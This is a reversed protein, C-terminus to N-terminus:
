KAVTAWSVTGAVFARIRVEPRLRGARAWGVLRHFGDLHYLTNPRQVLGRHAEAELPATVLILTSFNAGSAAALRGWCSPNLRAYEDKLRDLTAAADQVTAGTEPVLLLRDGRCPEGAHSPLLVGLAAPGDIEIERWSSEGLQTTAQAILERTWPWSGGPDRREALVAREVDDVCIRTGAPTM